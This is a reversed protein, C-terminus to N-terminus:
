HGNLTEVARPFFVTSGEMRPKFGRALFRSNLVPVRPSFFLMHKLLQRLFPWRFLTDEFAWDLNFFFLRAQLSNQEKQCCLLPQPHPPTPPKNSPNVCGRKWLFPFGHSDGGSLYEFGRWQFLCQRGISALCTDTDILGILISMLSKSVLVADMKGESNVASYYYHCMVVQLKWCLLWKLGYCLQQIPFLLAQDWLCFPLSVPLSDQNWQHSPSFWNVQNVRWPREKRWKCLIMLRNEESRHYCSACFWWGTRTVETIISSKM